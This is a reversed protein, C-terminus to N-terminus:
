LVVEHTTPLYYQEDENLLGRDTDFFGGRERWESFADRDEFWLTAFGECTGDRTEGSEEDPTKAIRESLVPHQVYHEVCDEWRGTETERNVHEHLWYDRFEQGSREERRTMQSVYKIMGDDVPDVDVAVDQTIFFETETKDVFKEEDAQVENRYYPHAFWDRLAQVNDFWVQSFGDFPPEGDDYEAPLTHSQVYKRLKPMESPGSLVVDPHDERWYDHFEQPTMGEKRKNAAMLQIM